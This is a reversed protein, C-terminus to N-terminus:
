MIDDSKYMWSTEDYKKMFENKLKSSFHSLHTKILAEAEHNRALSESLACPWDPLQVTSQDETFESLPGIESLTEETRVTVVDDHFRRYRRQEDPPLLTSVFHLLPDSETSSEVRTRPNTNSFETSQASDTITSSSTPATIPNVNDGM